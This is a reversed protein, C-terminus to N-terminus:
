ETLLKKGEFAFGYNRIRNRSTGEETLIAKIKVHKGSYGLYVVFFRFCFGTETKKDSEAGYLLIHNGRIDAKKKM